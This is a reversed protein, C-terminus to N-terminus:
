VISLELILLKKLNCPHMEARPVPNNFEAHCRIQMRYMEGLEQYM